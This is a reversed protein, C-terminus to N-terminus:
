IEIDDLHLGYSGDPLSRAIAAVREGEGRSYDALSVIRRTHYPHKDPDLLLLVKPKLHHGPSQAFVIGVERTDLEVLSGTPYTGLVRIFAEVLDNDFYRGQQEYLMQLALSPAIPHAFPRPNTVAVYFDVIGAIKGLLPIQNGHMGAPYGSGDFREHHTRVIDLVAPDDEGNYELMQLGREVHSKMQEWEAQSLRTSKHLLEHPLATKGIDMLLVGTALAHLEDTEMGLSRGLTTAWVAATLSDRYVYSDFRRISTLWVYADPNSAISSVMINTAAKIDELKLQSNGNALTHVESVLEAIHSHSETATEIEEEIPRTTYHRRPAPLTSTHDRPVDHLEIEEDPIAVYVFRTLHRLDDLEKQTHVEFGQFLFPTETWPRDLSSVYMGITVETSPIKNVPM